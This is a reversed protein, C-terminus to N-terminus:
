VSIMELLDREFVNISFYKRYVNKANKGMESLKDKNEVCWTIKECLEKINENKFVIGDIGDTIYEITGTADSLLCPVGHMMAEAAVTPMPDERSPCILMDAESLISDIKARNVTGLMVIEPLMERDRKIQQAMMSSDQGILYFIVNKRIEVSLRKIAEVLIDQGKRREIYGITVFCLKNGNGLDLNQKEINNLINLNSKEFEPSEERKTTDEVGYILRGVELDPLFKQIAKQPVSGVSVVKLNKRDITRLLEKDIGDYFFLSDHLWWIVPIDTNRNSLFIHFNITNCLIMSFDQLWVIKSMTGIQLKEDVVVPINKELLKERLPGDLMSAYVVNVGHKLLTEAVHLLAIAPGGLTLDQSLLLIRKEKKNDLVAKKAHGFYQINKPYRSVDIIKYLDYFHLICSEEVGLELLQKKMAKIYFSLIIIKDYELKVGEDPSLVQIGDIKKNQKEISNDLLAVIEGQSFWKKYREYYDGTGFLLYKM